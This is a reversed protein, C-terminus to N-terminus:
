DAEEWRIEDGEPRFVVYTSDEAFVAPYHGSGDCAGGEGSELVEGDVVMQGSVVYLFSGKTHSHTPVRQGKDGAIVSVLMGPYTFRAVRYGHETTTWNFDEAHVHRYGPM